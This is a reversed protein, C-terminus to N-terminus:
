EVSQPTTISESNKPFLSILTRLAQNVAEGNPFYERVDPDLMVAGDELTFHQIVTTGNAQHISVTHGRRYAQHHKGRVGNTFDYEPLMDNDPIESQESNVNNM